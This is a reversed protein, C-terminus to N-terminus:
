KYIDMYNKLSRSSIIDKMLLASPRVAFKKTRFNMQVLGFKKSFGKAWEYNDTLSWHLYGRINYGKNIAKEIESLYTVIYFPRLTDRSDAIGNETIFMPLNNYREAIAKIVNYMGEPYIEWGNDTVLRGGLSRNMGACVYGYGNVVRWNIEFNEPKEKEHTKKIVTRTYHNIGIFDMKVRDLFYWNSIYMAEEHGMGEIWAVSYILGVPKKTIAKMKEYAM